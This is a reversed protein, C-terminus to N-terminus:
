GEAEVRVKSEEALRQQNEDHYFIASKYQQSFPPFIPLHSDWFVRLLEEYSIQVPDYDIQITESHSGLNHYTPNDKTGGAYGVRTRVM